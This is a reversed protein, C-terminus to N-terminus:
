FAALEKNVFEAVAQVHAPQLVPYAEVTAKNELDGLCFLQSLDSVKLTCNRGLASDHSVFSFKALESNWLMELAKQQEGQKLHAIFQLSQLSTRVAPRCTKYFKSLHKVLYETAVQPQNSLILGVVTKRQRCAVTDSQRLDWSDSHLCSEDDASEIAPSSGRAVAQLNFFSHSNQLNRM